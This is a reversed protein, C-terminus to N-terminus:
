AAPILVAFPRIMFDLCATADRHTRTISFPICAFLLTSSVKDFFFLIYSLVHFSPTSARERTDGSAGHENSRDYNSKLAGFTSLFSDSYGKRRIKM